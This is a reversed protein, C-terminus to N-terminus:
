EVFARIADWTQANTWYASHSHPFPQGSEIRVDRVGRQFVPAAVYSLFDYPDYVNLWPPFHAPLETVGPALGWLAGIEHLYPAQSGVTILGKVRPVPESALLDACAIGGLSHALVYVDDDLDVISKRIYDRIPGGRAQYRLIDGAAPNAGESLPGRRWKVIPTAVSAAMDGLFGRLFAGVGAVRAQWDEVLQDVLADRGEGDLLPLGADFARSLMEAALARAVAQAPEGIETAAEIAHRATLDERIVHKRAAAWCQELGAAGIRARVADTEAYEEIRKWLAKTAAGAAPGRPGAAPRRLLLRLEFLPDRYLLDWRAYEQDRTLACDKPVITVDPVAKVVNAAGLDDGWLCPALTHAIDHDDFALQITAYTSLYSGRRVGTGHVFLVTAM